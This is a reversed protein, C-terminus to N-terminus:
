CDHSDECTLKFQDLARLWLMRVAGCSRNMKAAIEEFALGQLVRYVIVDRYQSPLQSLQNAFDVAHERSRMPESPSATQGPLISALNCTSEDMQQSIRDISVERRLDRKGAHMHTAFTHHMTNILIKRLWGLMEPQSTGRFARFDRHAALMTEQVVDSPNIRQRLRRDLQTTALINLYNAYWQLLQGLSEIDGSRARGLLAPFDENACPSDPSSTNVM